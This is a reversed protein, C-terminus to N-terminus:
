SCGTTAGCSDCKLCTGNRVLTFAGCEPCADGEYGMMRAVQVKSAMTDTSVGAKVVEPTSAQEVNSQESYSGMDGSANVVMLNDSAQGRLYGQSSMKKVIKWPIQNKKLSGEEAGTGLSFDVDSEDTHALDNRSLYSVAM